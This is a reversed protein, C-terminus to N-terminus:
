CKPKQLSIEFLHDRITFLQCSCSLLNHWSQTLMRSNQWLLKRIQSLLSFSSQFNLRQCQLRSNHKNFGNAQNTSVEVRCEIFNNPGIKWPFKRHLDILKLATSCNLSFTPLFIEAISSSPPQPPPLLACCTCSEQLNKELECVVCLLLTPLRHPCEMIKFNKSQM